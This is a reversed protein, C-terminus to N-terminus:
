RERGIGRERGRAEVARRIATTALDFARAAERDRPREGLPEDGLRRGHVRRYDDIALAARRWALVARPEHTLAPRRGIAAELWKPPKEELEFLRAARPSAHEWAVAELGLEERLVANAEAIIRNVSTYSLGRMQGIEQYSFGTVQLAKIDRRRDPLEAFANLAERLRMRIAVQDRRDPVDWVASEGDREFSLSLHDAEGRSSERARCTPGGSCRACSSDTSTEDGRLPARDGERQDSM